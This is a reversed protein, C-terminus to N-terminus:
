LVIFFKMLFRSATRERALDRQSLEPRAEILRLLRLHTDEMPREIMAPQNPDAANQLISVMTLQTRELRSRPNSFSDPPIDIPLRNDNPPSTLAKM